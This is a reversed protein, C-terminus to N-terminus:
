KLLKFQNTNTDPLKVTHEALFQQFPENGSEKMVNVDPYVEKMTKKEGNDTKTNNFNTKRSRNDDEFIDYADDYEIESSFNLIEEYKKVEKEEFGLEDYDKRQDIALKKIQNRKRLAENKEEKQKEEITKGDQMETLKRQKREIIKEELQKSNTFGMVNFQHRIWNNLLYLLFPWITEFDKGVIGSRPFKMLELYIISYVITSRKHMPSGIIRIPIFYYGHKDFVKGVSVIWRVMFNSIRKYIVINERSYEQFEKFEMYGGVERLKEDDEGEAAMLAKWPADKAEREEKELRRQKADQTEPMELGSRMAINSSILSGEQGKRKDQALESAKVKRGRRGSSEIPEEQQTSASKKLISKLMKQEDNLHYDTELEAEIQEDTKGEAKKKKVNLFRVKRLYELTEHDEIFDDGKLLKIDPVKKQSDTQLLPQKHDEEVSESRKHEEKEEELIKQKAEESEIQAYIKKFDSMAGMGRKLFEQELDHHLQTLKVGKGIKKPQKNKITKYVFVSEDNEMLERLALTHM